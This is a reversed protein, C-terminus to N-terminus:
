GASAAFIDGADPEAEPEQEAVPEAKPKGKVLQLTPSPLLQIFVPEDTIGTLRGRLEETLHDGSYQVQWELVCTGGEKVEFGLVKVTCEPFEMNSKQDGLGYDMVFRYGKWKEGKAWTFKGQSLKPFRLNPLVVLVDPLGEQGAEKAESYYLMQRLAPDLLDLMSNSGELSFKLDFAPVQEEGHLERRVNIHKLSCQTIAELAFPAKM